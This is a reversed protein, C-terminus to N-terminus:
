FRWGLAVSPLPVSMKVKSETKTKDGSKYIQCIEFQTGVGLQVYMAKTLAFDFNAMADFGITTKRSAFEFYPGVNFILDTTKGVNMLYAFGGSLCYTSGVFDPAFDVYFGLGKDFTATFTADLEATFKAKSDKKSFDIDLQVASNQVGLDLRMDTAAFLSVSLVLTLLVVCFRKM